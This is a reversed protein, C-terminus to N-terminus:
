VMLHVDLANENVQHLLKGFKGGLGALTIGSRDVFVKVNEFKELLVSVLDNFLL